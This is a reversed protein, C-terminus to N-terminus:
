KSRVEFRSVITTEPRFFYLLSNERYMASFRRSYDPSIESDESESSFDQFKVTKKPPSSQGDGDQDISSLNFRLEKFDPRNAENVELMKVLLTKLKSSYNLKNVEAFILPTTDTSALNLNRTYELSGAQLLSLGLSFVDSKFRNHEVSHLATPDM